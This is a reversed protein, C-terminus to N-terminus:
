AHLSITTGSEANLLKLDFENTLPSDNTCINFFQSALLVTVM